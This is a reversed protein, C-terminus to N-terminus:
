MGRDRRLGGDCAEELRLWRSTLDERRETSNMWLTRFRLKRELCDELRPLGDTLGPLWTHDM